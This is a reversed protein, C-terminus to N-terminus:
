KAKATKAQQRLGQVYTVTAKGVAVSNGYTAPATVNAASSVYSGAEAGPGIRRVTRDRAGTELLEDTGTLSPVAARNLDLLVYRAIFAHAVEIEQKLFAGGDKLWERTLFVSSETPTLKDDQALEVEHQMAKYEKSGEAPPAGSADLASERVSAALRAKTDPTLVPVPLPTSYYTFTNRYLPGTKESAPPQSKFTYPTQYPIAANQYTAVAAVRLVSSDESLTYTAAIEVVDDQPGPALIKQTVVVDSFSVAHEAPPTVLAGFRAAASENLQVPTVLEAVETAQRNARAAPVANIIVSAIAGAIAGIMGAGAGNVNTYYWSKGVGSENGTLSAKTPGLREINAQSLPRANPVPEVTACAALSLCLLPAIARRFNPTM